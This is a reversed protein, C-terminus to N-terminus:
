QMRKVNFDPVVYIVQYGDYSDAPHIPKPEKPIFNGIGFKNPITMMQTLLTLLIDMRTGSYGDLNYKMLSKNCFINMYVYLNQMTSSNKEQRTTVDFCIFASAKDITTPPVYLYPLIVGDNWQGNGDFYGELQDDTEIDQNVKVIDLIKQNHLIENMIQEKYYARINFNPTM